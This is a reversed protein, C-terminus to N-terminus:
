VPPQSREVHHNESGSRLHLARNSTYLLRAGKQHRTPYQSTNRAARSHRLDQAYPKTLSFGTRWSRGAGEFASVESWRYQTRARKRYDSEYRANLFQSGLSTKRHVVRGNRTICAGTQQELSRCVSKQRHRSLPSGCASAQAVM